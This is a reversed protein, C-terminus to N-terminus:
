DVDNGINARNIMINFDRTKVFDNWDSKMSDSIKGQFYSETDVFLLFCDLINLTFDEEMPNISHEKFYKLADELDDPNFPKGREYEAYDKYKRGFYDVSDPNQKNYWDYILWDTFMLDYKFRPDKRKWNDEEVPKNIEQQLSMIKKKMQNISPM